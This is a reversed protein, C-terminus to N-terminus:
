ESTLRSEAAGASQPAPLGLFIRAGSPTFCRPGARQCPNQPRLQHDFGHPLPACEKAALPANRLHSFFESGRHILPVRHPTSSNQITYSLGLRPHSVQAGISIVVGGCNGFDYTFHSWGHIHTLHDRVLEWEFEGRSGEANRWGPHRTELLERFFLSVARHTRSNITPNFLILNASYFLPDSVRGADWAGDYVVRVYAVNSQRLAAAVAPMRKSLQETQTREASADSSAENRRESM